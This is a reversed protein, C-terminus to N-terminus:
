IKDNFSTREDGNSFNLLIGRCLIFSILRFVFDDNPQHYNEYLISYARQVNTFHAIFLCIYHTMELNFLCAVLNLTNIIEDLYSKMVLNKLLFFYYYYYFARFVMFNMWNVWKMEKQHASMLSLIWHTFFIKLWRYIISNPMKTKRNELFSVFHEFM